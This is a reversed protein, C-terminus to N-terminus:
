LNRISTASSVRLSLSWAISTTDNEWAYLQLLDGAAISYDASQTGGNPATVLVEAGLPAGNKYLRAAASTGAPAALSFVATIVGARPIYFEAVKTYSAEYIYGSVSAEVKSGAAYNVLKPQAVNYARITGAVVAESGGTQNLAAATVKPAGTAGEALATFNDQVQAMKTSTLVSGYNFTAATWTAM